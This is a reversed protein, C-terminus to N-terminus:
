HGAMDGHYRDDWSEDRMRNLENQMEQMTIKEEYAKNLDVPCLAVDIWGKANDDWFFAVHGADSDIMIKFLRGNVDMVDELYREKEHHEAYSNLQFLALAAIIIVLIIQPRM